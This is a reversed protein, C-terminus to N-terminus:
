FAVGFGINFVPGGALANPVEEKQTVSNYKVEITSNGILVGYGIEPRFYFSNGFKAGLKINLLNIGVTGKGEGLTPDNYTGKFGIRGYSLHGYLSRGEKLFYYNTGLEFYSYSLKVDNITFSFYSFDLTPALKAGLAPTVYELNLGVINPIGFKLGIRMPNEQANVSATFLALTFCFILLKKM